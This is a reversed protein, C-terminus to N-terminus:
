WRGNRDAPPVHVRHLETEVTSAMYPSWTQLSVQFPLEVVDSQLPVLLGSQFSYLRVDKLHRVGLTQLLQSVTQGPVVRLVFGNSRSPPAQDLDTLPPTLM